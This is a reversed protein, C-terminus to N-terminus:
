TEEFYGAEFNTSEDANLRLSWTQATALDKWPRIDTYRSRFPAPHLRNLLLIACVQEREDNSPPTKVGFTTEIIEDERRGTVGNRM